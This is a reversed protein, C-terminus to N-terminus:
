VVDDLKDKMQQHLAQIAKKLQHWQIFAMHTDIQECDHRDFGRESICITDDLAFMGVEAVEAEYLSESVEATGGVQQM